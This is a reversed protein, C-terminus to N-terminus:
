KRVSHTVATHSSYVSIPVTTSRVAISASIRKAARTICVRNKSSNLPFVGSSCFLLPSFIPASLATSCKTKKPTITFLICCDALLFTNKFLFVTGSTKRSVIPLPSVTGKSFLRNGLTCGQVSPFSSSQPIWLARKQKIERVDTDTKFSCPSLFFILRLCPLFHVEKYM